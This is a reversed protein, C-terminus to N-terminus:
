RGPVDPQWKKWEAEIATQPYTKLIKGSQADVLLGKSYGMEGWANLTVTTLRAGLADGANHQRAGQL